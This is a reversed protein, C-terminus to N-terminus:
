MAARMPTPILIMAPQQQVNLDLNEAEFNQDSYVLLLQVTLLVQVESM